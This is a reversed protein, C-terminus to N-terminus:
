IQPLCTQAPPSKALFWSAGYGTEGGCIRAPLVARALPGLLEASLNYAYLALVDRGSCDRFRVTVM